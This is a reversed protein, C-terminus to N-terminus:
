IKNAQIHFPRLCVMAYIIGLRFLSDKTVHNLPGPSKLLWPLQHVWCHLRSHRYVQSNGPHMLNPSPPNSTSSPESRTIELITVNIGSSLPLPLNSFYTLHTQFWKTLNKNSFCVPHFNVHKKPSSTVIYKEWSVLSMSALCEIMGGGIDQMNFKRIQQVM